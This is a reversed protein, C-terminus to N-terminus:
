KEQLPLQVALTTGKEPVSTVTLDGAIEQARRRMIELGRHNRGQATREDFGRGDDVIVLYLLNEAHRIDIAISRARAHKVINVLAERLINLVVRSLRPSLGPLNEDLKMTVAIQKKGVIRAVEANILSDLKQESWGTALNDLMLDVHSLITWVARRLEHLCEAADDPNTKIADTASKSLLLVGRLASKVTDHLDAELRNREQARVLENGAIVSAAQNAFLEIVQRDHETFQHRQRYNVCLVGLLTGRAMLPIGAFSLINQRVTFTRRKSIMGGLEDVDLETAAILLPDKHVDPQYYPKGLKAIHHVINDQDEPPKLQQHGEIEGASIPSSFVPQSPGVLYEHQQLPYLLIVSADLVSLATRTIQELLEIEDGEQRLKYSIEYLRALTEAHKREAEFLQANQIAVTLTRAYHQLATVLLAPIRSYQERIFGAEIVGLKGLPAWIRLLDAHNYKQWAQRDFRSDWGSIIEARGTRLVVAQINDSDLSHYADQQWGEPINRSAATRIERKDDDRLYITAFSFGIRECITDLAVRYVDQLRMTHVDLYDFEVMIGNQTVEHTSGPQGAQDLEPKETNM